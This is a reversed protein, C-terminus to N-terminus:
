KDRLIMRMSLNQVANTQLKSCCIIVAIACLTNNVLMDNQRFINLKMRQAIRLFQIVILKEKATRITILKYQLMCTISKHGHTVM